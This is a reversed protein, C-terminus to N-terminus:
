ESAVVAATSGTVPRRQLLYLADAEFAWEIDHPGSGFVDDCGQGVLTESREEGGAIRLEGCSADVPAM